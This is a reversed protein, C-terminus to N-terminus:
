ALMRAHYWESSICVGVHSYTVLIGSVCEAFMSFVCMYVCGSYVCLVSSVRTFLIDCTRSECVQAPISVRANQCTFHVMQVFTFLKADTHISHM